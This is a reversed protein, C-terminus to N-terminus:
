LLGSGSTPLGAETRPFEVTPLICDHHDLGLIHNFLQKTTPRCAVLRHDVPQDGLVHHVM